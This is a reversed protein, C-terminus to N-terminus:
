GEGACNWQKRSHTTANCAANITNLFISFGCVTAGPDLDRLTVGAMPSKRLGNQGNNKRVKCSDQAKAANNLAFSIGSKSDAGVFQSRPGDHTLTMLPSGLDNFTM